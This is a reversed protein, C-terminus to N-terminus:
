AKPRELTQGDAVDPNNPSRVGHKALGRAEMLGLSETIESSHKTSFVTLVSLHIPVCFTKNDDGQCPLM